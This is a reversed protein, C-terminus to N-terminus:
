YWFGIGLNFDILVTEGGPEVTKDEGDYKLVLSKDGPIVYGYGAGLSLYCIFDEFAKKLGVYGLAGVCVVSTRGNDLLEGQRYARYDHDFVKVNAMIEFFAMNWPEPAYQRGGLQLDLGRATLEIDGFDDSSHETTHDFAYGVRAIMARDKKRLTREHTLWLGGPFVFGKVTESTFFSLPHFFMAYKKRRRVPETKPITDAAVTDPSVTSDAPASVAASDPGAASDSPASVAASDPAAAAASDPASASDAPASAETSDSASATDAPASAATSDPAVATDASAAASDAPAEEEQALVGAALVLVTAMVAIQFKLM